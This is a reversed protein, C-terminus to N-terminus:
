IKCVLNETGIWKELIIQGTKLEDNLPSLSAIEVTGVVYHKDLQNTKKQFDINGVQRKHDCIFWCRRGIEYLLYFLELKEIMSTTSGFSSDMEICTRIKEFTSQNHSIM